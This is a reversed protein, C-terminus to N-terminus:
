LAVSKLCGVSIYMSCEVLPVDIYLSKHIDTDLFSKFM